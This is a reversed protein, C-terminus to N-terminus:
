SIRESRHQTMYNKLFKREEMLTKRANLTRITDCFNNIKFDHRTTTAPASKINLM